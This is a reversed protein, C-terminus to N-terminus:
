SQVKPLFLKRSWMLYKVPTQIRRRIMHLISYRRVNRLNYEIFCFCRKWLVIMSIDKNSFYWFVFYRVKSVSKKISQRSQITKIQNALTWSIHLNKYTNYIYEKIPKVHVILGFESHLLNLCCFQLQM